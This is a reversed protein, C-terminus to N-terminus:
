IRPRVQLEPAPAPAGNVFDCTGASDWNKGLSTLAGSQAVAFDHQQPSSFEYSFPAKAPDRGVMDAYATDGNAPEAAYRTTFDVVFRELMAAATRFRVWRHNEWNITQPPAPPSPSTFRETLLAGACQGRRSLKTVVDQTMDINLGGEQASLFVDVIRDRFGPVQSQMTDNWNQMSDIISGLFGPLNPGNDDFSNRSNSICDSNYAPMWVNDQENPQETNTADFGRLNIGFTPRGPIPADFFQIPFNSSLGGDSFWCRQGADDYLPVASLLVPFSLSMRAAVVIPIDAACPLAILKRELAADQAQLAPPATGPRPHDLMWQVIREPFLKSFEDPNFYFSAEAAEFPLTFPRGYTVNTTFMEINISREPPVAEASAPRSGGTYWLDGFTLPAEPPKGAIADIKDALWPTLAPDTCNPRAMGSCMGYGNKAVAHFLDWGAWILPAIIYVLLGLVVGVIAFLIKDGVAGDVASVRWLFVLTFLIAAIGAIRYRSSLVASLIRGPLTKKRSLLAAMAFTFLPHTADSPQFLKELNQNVGLWNPLANLAEFGAGGSPGAKIQRCYEAAATLTAAIAGASTGGINRFRYTKSLEHVAGPYVVGSAIGGKMVVDCELM